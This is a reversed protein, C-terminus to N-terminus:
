QVTLHYTMDLPLDLDFGDNALTFLFEGGFHITHQGSSLPKVMVYYGDGVATGNGGTAGFYWPTPAVFSFQPSVFLYSSSINDIVNGDVTFNLAATIIHSALYHANTIQDAENNGLGELDSAEANIIAVFLAKDAPITCTRVVTGFPAALFWVEGSQGMTVDFGPDDNFPHNAVPPLELAWKWWRASWEAYSYDYMHAKPPFVKPNAARAATENKSTENNLSSNVDDKKCSAFSMTVATLVIAFQKM